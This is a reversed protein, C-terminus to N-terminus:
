QTGTTAGAIKGLSQSYYYLLLSLLHDVFIVTCRTTNIQWKSLSGQRCIFGQYWSSPLKTHYDGWRVAQWTLASLSADCPQLRIDLAGKQGTATDVARGVAIDESVDGMVTKSWPLAFISGCSCSRWEPWEIFSLSSSSLMGNGSLSIGSTAHFVTFFTFTFLVHCFFRSTIRLTPGLRFSSVVVDLLWCDVDLLTWSAPLLWCGVALGEMVDDGVGLAVGKVVRGLVAGVVVGFVSGVVRWCCWCLLTCM